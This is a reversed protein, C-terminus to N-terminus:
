ATAKALLADYTGRREYDTKPPNYPLADTYIRAMDGPKAKKVRANWVAILQKACADPLPVRRTRFKSAMKGMWGNRRVEEFIKIIEPVDSYGDPSIIVPAAEYRFPMGGANADWRIESRDDYPLATVPPTLYVLRSGADGGQVFAVRAGNLEHAKKPHMLNTKHCGTLGFSGFEWFPDTRMETPREAYPQRLMAVLVTATKTM